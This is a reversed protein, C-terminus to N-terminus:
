TCCLPDRREMQVRHYYRRTILEMHGKCPRIHLFAFICANLRRSSSEILTSRGPRLTDQLTNHTPPPARVTLAQAGEGEEEGREMVYGATCPLQDSIALGVLHYLLCHLMVGVDGMYKCICLYISMHQIRHSGVLSKGHLKRTVSRDGCPCSVLM